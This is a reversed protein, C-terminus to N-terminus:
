RPADLTRYIGAGESRRDLDMMKETFESVLLATEKPCRRACNNWSARLAPPMDPAKHDAM